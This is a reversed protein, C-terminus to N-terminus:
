YKKIAKYLNLKLTNNFEDTGSFCFIHYSVWNMNKIFLNDFYNKIEGYPWKGLFCNPSDLNSLYKIKDLLQDRLEKTYLVGDCNNIEKSYINDEDFKKLSIYEGDGLKIYIFPIKNNILDIFFNINKETM